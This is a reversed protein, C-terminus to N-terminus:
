NGNRETLKRVLLNIIIAQVENKDLKEVISAWYPNWRSINQWYNYALQLENWTELIKYCKGFYYLTSLRKIRRELKKNTM